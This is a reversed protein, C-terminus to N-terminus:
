SNRSVLKWPSGMGPTRDVTNKLNNTETIVTPTALNRGTMWTLGHISNCIRGTLINTRIRIEQSVAQFVLRLHSPFIVSAPESLPRLEVGNYATCHHAPSTPLWGGCIWWFCPILQNKMVTAPRFCEPFSTNFTIEWSLATTVIVNSLQKASQWTPATYVEVEGEGRAFEISRTGLLVLSTVNAENRTMGPVHSSFWTSVDVSQLAAVM